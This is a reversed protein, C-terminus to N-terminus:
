ATPHGQIPQSKLTFSHDSQLFRVSPGWGLERLTGLYDQPTLEDPARELLAVLAAEMVNTAFAEGGIEPTTTVLIAVGRDKLMTAEAQRSSQTIIIKGELRLPMYRRILHWDGAIVNAEEFWRTFRPTNVEQRAGTPYIWEIPLRTVIPLALRALRQVTTWRHIPIPLGLGYLLDGYVVSSARESLAGAMGFRDVASVLLVRMDRLPVAGSADLLRITERELTDKLGSGDVWPTLHAGQMLRLTEKFAYRRQGAYLFADTGGVGICDVTGDYQRVLSAFGRKDGDTGIRRIEFDVGGINTHATKDRKSTGLSISVVRKM